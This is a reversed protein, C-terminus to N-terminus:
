KIQGVEIKEFWVTESESKIFIDLKDLEINDFSYVFMNFDDPIAISFYTTEDLVNEGNKSGVLKVAISQSGATKFWARVVDGSAIKKDIHYIPYFKDSPNKIRESYSDYKKVNEDKVIEGQKQNVLTENEKDQNEILESNKNHKNKSLVSNNLESQEKTPKEITIKDNEKNIIRLYPQSLNGDFDRTMLSIMYEGNDLPKFYVDDGRGIYVIQEDKIIKWVYEMVEGNLDAKSSNILHWSDDQQQVSFDLGKAQRPQNTNFLASLSYALSCVLLLAIVLVAIRRNRYKKKNAKDKVVTIANDKSVTLPEQNIVTETPGVAILEIVREGDDSNYVITASEDVTTETTPEAAKETEADIKNDIEAEAETESAETETEVEVETQTLATIEAPSLANTDNINDIDEVNEFTNSTASAILDDDDVEANFIFLDLPENEDDDDLVLTAPIKVSKEAKHLECYHKYIDKIKTYSNFNDSAFYALDAADVPFLLQAIKNLSQHFDDARDIKNLDIVENLQVETEDSIIIQVPDILLNIIKTPLSDYDVIKALYDKMLRQATETNTTHTKIYSPLPAGQNYRTVFIYENDEQYFCINSLNTVLDRFIIENIFGDKRFQNILVVDDEDKQNIGMYISQEANEKWINLYRYNGITKMRGELYKQNAM